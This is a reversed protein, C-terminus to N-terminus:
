PARNVRAIPVAFTNEADVSSWIGFCSEAPRINPWQSLTGTGSRSRVCSNTTSPAFGIADFPLMHVTGSKRPLAFAICARPPFSITISGRVVSVAFSASRWTGIRGPPSTNKRSAITLVSNASPSTLSPLSASCTAPTSSTRAATASKVGSSAAARQPISAAVM